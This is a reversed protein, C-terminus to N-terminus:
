VIVCNWQNVAENLEPEEKPEEPALERTKLIIFENDNLIWRAIAYPDNRITTKIKQLIYDLRGEMNRIEAAGITELLNLEDDWYYRICHHHFADRLKELMTFFLFTLSGRESIHFMNLENYCLTEIYYSAINKWKQTDRFKKLTRIVPKMRGYEHKGLLDKEFEYFCLRWYRHLSDQFGGRTNNLPKPVVSWYRIPSKKLIHMKSCRPPPTRVLFTLVPVVDIDITKGFPTQFILTFAPGSKRIRIPPYGDLKIQHNIGSSTHAVKSFIGEMWFRFKEQNLYSEEDIFSNLERCAKPDINLTDRLNRWSTLIKTYGPRDGRFEIDKEKFPLNIVFNLDYEEPQGIRTGKYYSGAWVIRQYTKGFLPSERKMASILQEFIPNLFQNHDKVNDSDMSIFYKNIKNFITDNVLSKKIDPTVQAM